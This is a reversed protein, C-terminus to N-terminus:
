SASKRPAEEWQGQANLVRVAVVHGTADRVFAVRSEPFGEVSFVDANLTQLLNPHGHPRTLVLAGAEVTIVRDGYTGAYEELHASTTPAIMEHAVAASAGSVSAPRRAPEPLRIVPSALRALRLRGHVQDLTVAFNQLLGSGLNVQRPYDPPLPVVRVFPSPFSYRGIVVPGSLRGGRVEIEGFVGRARGVVALGGDFPLLDALAPPMGITGSNQTDLIAITDRGAISIPLEWFLGRRIPLVDQGDSDPLSDRDLRLRQEPYDITLLVNAFFPLGLVGDVSGVAAPAVSVTMDEFRAEGIAIRDLHYTPASDSGGSRQLHLSDILRQSLDIANSGTEVLFRFPGRGDVM